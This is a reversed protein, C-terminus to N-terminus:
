RRAGLRVSAGRRALREIAAPWAEPDGIPDGSALSVGAVVRYTVAAKGTPSFVVAKDRRTAFYGLSDREGSAALLQRVQIEDAPSQYRLDRRPRLLVWGAIVLSVAGLLGLGATTADDTRRRDGPRHERERSRRVRPDRDM